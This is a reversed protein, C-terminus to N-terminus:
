NTEIATNVKSAAQDLHKQIVSDTYPTSKDLTADWIKSFGQYFYVESPLWAPTAPYTRGYSLMDKFVSRMPHGAIYQDELAPIAAPLNGTKKAYAIQAEKSGLYNVLKIAANINKSTKYISLNSGGVFCAKGGPGEPLPAVGIKSYTNQGSQKDSNIISDINWPGLIATAFEGNIFMYEIDATNKELATRSMLGERALSTYFKVGQLAKNSNIAAKKNDPTFFDGGAGWVWWSFNHVTNWDNKGPMGLASVKKGNIQVGNLKKLSAKFKDWTAFDTKPNVGAKECADKRYYLARTDLFWPIATREGTGARGTTKLSVPVYNEESFRGKLDLLADMSSVAPVWTTGIQTIDPSDGSAAAATVKTWASGWDIVTVTIDLDPYQDEFPKVVDLFDQDPISSNPMIWVHLKGKLNNDRKFKLVIIKKNGDWLVECGLADMVKRLPIMTRGNIIQPPVDLTDEVGDIFVTSSGIHLEVVTGNFSVIVNKLAGNWEVTGGMEEVLARIPMLTRGNIIVPKTDRGPDISRNVGDVTMVSSGVKLVINSNQETQASVTETKQAGGLMFVISTAIVVMISVAKRM